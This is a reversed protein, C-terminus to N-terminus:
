VREDDTELLGRFARGPQDWAWGGEVPLSVSAGLPSAIQGSNGQTHTTLRVGPDLDTHAWFELELGASGLGQDDEYCYKEM